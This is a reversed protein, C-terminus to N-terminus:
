YPAGPLMHCISGAEKLQRVAGRGCGFSFSRLKAPAVRIHLSLGSQRTSCTCIVRAIHVYTYIYIYRYTHIYSYNLINAYTCIYVHILVDHPIRIRQCYTNYIYICVHMCVYMCLYIYVCMIHARTHTHTHTHTHAHTHRYTHMCAHMYTTCIVATYIYIYVRYLNFGCVDSIAKM